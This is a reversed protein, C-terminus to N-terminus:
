PTGEGHSLRRLEAALEVLLRNADRLSAVLDEYEPYARQIDQPSDGPRRDTEATYWRRFRAQWRTLHPRLGQNLVTVLLDHLRRLNKNKAIEEADIQRALRRIEGFLAYWSDYIETLVDDGEEFAIAAKRTILEVYAEHALKATQRDREIDWRIGFFTPSIQVVRWRHLVQWPRQWVLWAALVLLVGIWVVPGVAIAVQGDGIRADVLLSWEWTM